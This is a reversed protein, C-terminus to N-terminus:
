PSERRAYQKAWLVAEGRSVRPPIQYLIPLVDGVCGVDRMDVGEAVTAVVVIGFGAEIVQLGTIIVGCHAAEDIRIGEFIETRVARDM